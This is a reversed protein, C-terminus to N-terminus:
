VLFNTVDVIERERVNKLTTESRAADKGWDKVYDIHRFLSRGSAGGQHSRQESGKQKGVWYQVHTRYPRSRLAKIALLHEM